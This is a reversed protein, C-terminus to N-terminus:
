YDQSTRESDKQQSKWQQQEGEKIISYLANELTQDEKSEAVPIIEQASENADSSKERLSLELNIKADTSTGDIFLAQRFYDAATEYDGNRHAIIGSNYLIAFKIKDPANDYVQSFKALAANNAAQLFDATASQYNGKSWDLKGQLIKVGDNFKPTCGTFIFLCATAAAASVLRNKGGTIDLEGLLISALFFVIALMIFTKHRKKTQLEYTVTTGKSSASIVKLIKTASGMESADIYQCSSINGASKVANIIKEIESTRLATKVKTQGDGTLIESERESGFGIVIVPIGYRSSEALSSQLASDTEECDTFLLIYSAESSQEPFSSVAAKIGKGLSTGAATMLKPSLNEILTEVCNYDDTLPVSVVGDGKALVVSVKTGNFHALLAKAYIAAANLRSIGGPADHAEMSYSIDFVLSVAKGSKQVPIADTGWSIGAGALIVMCASLGRFITRLWFCRDMRNTLFNGGAVKNKESLVKKLKRFKFIVFVLALILPIFLWFVFPHLVTFNM